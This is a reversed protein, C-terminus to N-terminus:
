GQRGIYGLTRLLYVSGHLLQWREGPYAHLLLLVFRKCLRRISPGSLWNHFGEHVASLLGISGQRLKPLLEVAVQVLRGQGLFLLLPHLGGPSLSTFCLRVIHWDRNYVVLVLQDVVLFEFKSPDIEIGFRCGTSVIRQGDVRYNQLRCVCRYRHLLAFSDGVHHVPRVNLDTGLLIVDYASCVSTGRDFAPASEYVKHNVLRNFPKRRGVDAISLLWHSLVQPAARLHFCSLRASALFSVRESRRGCCFFGNLFDYHLCGGPFFVKIFIFHM